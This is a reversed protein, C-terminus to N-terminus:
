NFKCFIRNRKLKKSLIENYVIIEPAHCIFHLLYRDHNGKILYKIGKLQSIINIAEPHHPHILSRPITIYAKVPFDDLGSPSKQDILAISAYESKDEIKNDEM